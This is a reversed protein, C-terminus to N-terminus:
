LITMCIAVGRKPLLAICRGHTQRQDRQGLCHQFLTTQNTFDGFPERLGDRKLRLAFIDYSPPSVWACAYTRELIANHTVPSMLGQQWLLPLGTGPGSYVSM